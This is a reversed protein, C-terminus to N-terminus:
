YWVSLNINFINADFSYADAASQDPAYYDEYVNRMLDYSFAVEGREFISRKETFLQWSLGLGATHATYTSLEKDSAMFEFLGDFDSSFFSAKGQDYYHYNLDLVLKDSLQRTYGLEFTHAQIDWSDDFYRYGVSAVSGNQIRKKFRLAYATSTRTRPYIEPGSFSGFVRKSRYPNSLFGEDTIGEVNFTMLITPSIVQSLGISYNFRDRDEEFDTDSRMVTDQGVAFGLNLTSMEAFFSQSLDISYSDADYDNETSNVYALSLLSEGLLVNVGVSIEDRDESYKSASALVDPSAGSIADQYYSTSISIKDKFSKRVLLAPGNVTVGGGDYSHYM